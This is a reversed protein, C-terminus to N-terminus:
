CEKPRFRSIQRDYYDLSTRYQAPSLDDRRAEVRARGDRLVGTIAEKLAEIQRCQHRSTEEFRDATNIRYVLTVGLAVVAVAAVVASGLLKFRGALDTGFLYLVRKPM